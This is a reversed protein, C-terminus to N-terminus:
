FRFKAGACAFSQAGFGIEAFGRVHNKGVEIGIPVIHFFPRFFKFQHLSEINDFTSHSYGLKGTSYLSVVEKDLWIWRFTAMICLINETHDTVSILVETTEDYESITYSKGAWSVDAGIGFRRSLRYEYGVNFCGTYRENSSKIFDTYSLDPSFYSFVGNLGYDAHISHTFMGREADYRANASFSVLLAALLLFAKRGM